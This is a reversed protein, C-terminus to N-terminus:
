HLPKADPLGDNEPDRDQHFFSERFRSSIDRGNVIASLLECLASNVASPERDWMPAINVTHVALKGPSPMPLGTVGIAWCPKSLMALGRQILWLAVTNRLTLRSYM